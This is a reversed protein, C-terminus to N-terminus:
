NNINVILESIKSQLIYLQGRHCYIDGHAGDLALAAQLSSLCVPPPRVSPPPPPPPRPPMAEFDAIAKAEEEREYWLSARKLLVDISRPRLDIAYDYLTMAEPYNGRLHLFMGAMSLATAPSIAAGGSANAANSWVALAQAGQEVSAVALGVGDLWPAQDM